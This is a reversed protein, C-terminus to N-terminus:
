LNRIEDLLSGDPALLQIIMAPQGDAHTACSFCPDYARVVASVRNLMGEQLRNGHVFHESVQQISKGIALNNHGSAVILNAWTIAGNEDVKYHHILVGRPAEVMGVGELANVGATARVHTELIQPDAALNGIRELGHLLEILRAYHFLFSSHAPRGFLRHFEAKEADAKPTGCREAVNIRALPGVRYMGDPYGLPKFYPAKLYSDRLSSEGIYSAYDEAAVGGQLVTGAADIFRLQGDYLQLDGSANVTGAYLTPMAGFHDIEGAFKDLLPKFIALAREAAIIAAPLEAAIWDRLQATMPANVGGPVVWSPHVRERALGEIVQLGFKRLEIGMRALEPHKEIVGLVNRRAPDSDMGLLLDPASLYFFSLAHSQVIQAYHLMERLRHAAVPIKVAMIADCAKASALLHSVPCIGCIRATIGPMEYYPRGATFVEFGRFQTVHLQTSAVSGDDNLHISIRAHGEVRSVPDITLKKM